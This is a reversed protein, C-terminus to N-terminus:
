VNACRFVSRKPVETPFSAPQMRQDLKKGSERIRTVLRQILYPEAAPCMDRILIEHYDMTEVRDTPSFREFFFTLAPSLKYLLDLTDQLNAIDSCESGQSESLFESDKDDDVKKHGYEEDTLPCRGSDWLLLNLEERLDDKADETLGLDDAFGRRSPRELLRVGREYDLLGEMLDALLSVTPEMLYESFDLVRDLLDGEVDYNLAWIKLRAFVEHLKPQDKILQKNKKTQEEAL